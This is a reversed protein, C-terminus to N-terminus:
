HEFQEQFGDPRLCAGPRNTIHVNLEDVLEAFSRTV